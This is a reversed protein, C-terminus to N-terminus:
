KAGARQTADGTLSADQAWLSSAFSSALTAAFFYRLNAGLPTVFIMIFIWHVGVRWPCNLWYQRRLEINM